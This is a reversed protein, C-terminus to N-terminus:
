AVERIIIENMGNTLVITNKATTLAVKAGAVTMSDIQQAVFSGGGNGGIIISSIRAIIQDNGAPIVIDDAGGFGDNNVDLVGAVLSSGAWEGNVVVSGIQADGNAANGFRDYGALIRSGEVNGSVSLKAIAIDTKTQVAQGLARVEVGHLSGASMTGIDRGASVISGSMFGSVKLSKISGAAIVSGSEGGAAAQVNSSIQVSAIAGLKVLGESAANNGFGAIITGSRLGTSGNMQSLSVTGISGDAQVQGSDDGAGGILSVLKLSVLTGALTGDDLVSVGGSGHGAGGAIAGTLTISKAIGGARITGSSIGDGGAVNGFVKVTGLGRSAYISGSGNGIGGKVVDGIPATANGITAKDIGGGSFVLGSNAGAGGNVAGGVVLTKLNSKVTFDTGVNISASYIGGAGALNGAVSISSAAGKVSIGGSYNGTGGTLNEGVTITGVKGNVVISGNAESVGGILSKSVSISGLTTGVLISGGSEKASAISGNLSGQIVIKEVTGTVSVHGSRLGTGAAIGDPVSGSNLVSLSVMDGAFIAGSETGAGGVMVGQVTIAGVNDGVRITGSGTGAAGTMSGRVLISKVDGGARISGSDNGTSGTLGSIAVSGLNNGARIVGSEVGAAGNVAGAAVSGIDGTSFIRGSRLGAGGTISGQMSIKGLGGTGASISGSGEGAGGLINGDAPAGTLTLNGMSTAASISAANKGSAGGNIATEGRISVLSVNGIAGQSSVIRGSAEGSGAFLSFQLTVDGIGKDGAVQGSDKGASGRIDGNVTLTGIKGLAHIRGAGQSGGGYIGGGPITSTGVKVTGINGAVTFSGADALTLNASVSLKGGITLSGLNGVLTKGNIINGDKIGFIVDAVDTNVAISGVAAYITSELSAGTTAQTATGFKGMSNVILSQLGIPKTVVGADIRGLDGKVLIKGLTIGNLASQNANIFGVNALGDGSGDATITISIGNAPSTSQNLPTTTVGLLDITQLEQATDTNGNSRVNGTDFKFVRDLLADLTNGPAFLAKSFKVTVLDGQSDKFQVTTPNLLIAPAIRGELPEFSSETRRKGRKEPPQKVPQPQENKRGTIRTLIRRLLSKKM